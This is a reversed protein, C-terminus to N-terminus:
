PVVVHWKTTIEDATRKTLTGDSNRCVHDGVVPFSSGETPTMKVLLTTEDLMTIRTPDGAWTQLEALNTGTWQVADIRRPLEDYLM